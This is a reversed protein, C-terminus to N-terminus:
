AGMPKLPGSWQDPFLELAREAAKVIHEDRDFRLKRIASQAESTHWEVLRLLAVMRSRSNPSQVTEGEQQVYGIRPQSVIEILVPIVAPENMRALAQVSEHAKDLEAYRLARFRLIQVTTLTAVERVLPDGDKMAASIEELVADDQAIGQRNAFTVAERLRMGPDTGRLDFDIRAREILRAAPTKQVVESQQDPLPRQDPPLDLLHLAQEVIPTILPENLELMENLFSRISNVGPQQMVARARTRWLNVEEAIEGQRARLERQQERLRNREDETVELMTRGLEDLEDSLDIFQKQIASAKREIAQQVQRLGIGIAL